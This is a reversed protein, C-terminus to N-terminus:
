AAERKQLNDLSVVMPALNNNTNIIFIEDLAVHGHHLAYGKQIKILFKALDSTM